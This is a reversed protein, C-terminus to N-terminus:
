VIREVKFQRDHGTTASILASIISNSLARTDVGNIECLIDGVRILDKIPSTDLVAQIEPKGTTSRDIVIGLSGPPAVFSVFSRKQFAVIADVAADPPQEAHYLAEQKRSENPSDDDFETSDDEHVPQLTEQVSQVELNRTSRLGVFGDNVWWTRMLGKGKINVKGRSRLPMDPCQM